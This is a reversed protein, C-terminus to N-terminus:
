SRRHARVLWASVHSRWSRKGDKDEVKANLVLWKLRWLALVPAWLVDQGESVQSLEKELSQKAWDKYEITDPVIGETIVSQLQELTPLPNGRESPVWSPSLDM